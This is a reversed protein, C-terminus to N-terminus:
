DLTVWRTEPQRAEPLRVQLEEWRDHLDLWGPAKMGRCYGSPDTGSESQFRRLARSAPHTQVMVM